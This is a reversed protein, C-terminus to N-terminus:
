NLNENAHHPGFSGEEYERNGEVEEQQQDNGCFFASKKKRPKTCERAIHGTKNCNYCTIEKKPTGQKRNNFTPKNGVHFPVSDKKGDEFTLKKKFTTNEPVNAYDPNPNSRSSHERQQQQYQPKPQIAHNRRMDKLDEVVLNCQEILNDPTWASLERIQLKIRPLLKQRCRRVADEVTEMPYVQKSLRMVTWVFAENSEDERQVRRHLYDARSQRHFWTDYKSRFAAKFIDWTWAPQKAHEYWTKKDRDLISPIMYLYQDPKYGQTKFYDEVETLYTDATMVNPIYKPVRVETRTSTIIIPQPVPAPHPPPPPPPPVLAAIHAQLAAQKTPTLANWVAQPIAAMNPQQPQATHVGRRRRKPVSTPNQYKIRKAVTSARAPRSSPTGISDVAKRKQSMFESEYYAKWTFHLKTFHRCICFRDPLAFAILKL